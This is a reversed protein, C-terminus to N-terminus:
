PGDVKLPMSTQRRAQRCDLCHTPPTLNKAAFKWARYTFLQGCTRCTATTDHDEIASRMLGLRRKIDVLDRTFGLPAHREILREADQLGAVAVHAASSRKEDSPM